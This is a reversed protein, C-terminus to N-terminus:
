DRNPALATLLRLRQPEVVFRVAGDLDTRKVEVNAAQLRQLVPPSPHGYVNRAGVSIVAYRPHWRDLWAPTTSTKSGHHAVKMVDISQNEQQPHPMPHQGLVEEEEPAEMDGTFLFRFGYLRLLFVVSENNQRDAVRLKSTRDGSPALVSIATEADPYLEPVQGAPVLPVGKDLLTRFLRNVKPDPKLTGNFVFRGIPIQEAVAQLGGIHDQDEHTAIVYDLKHVGRQLLLPVVVSRGVEFPNRRDRWEEGAKRFTLTGGGDILIFKRSPTRILAADGQGVDLFEVSATRSLRDPTYGYVLLLALATACAAAPRWSAPQRFAAPPQLEHVALRRALAALLLSLAAFYTAIWLPSPRPWILQFGDIAALRDIAWLTWRSLLGTAAGALRGLPLWVLGAALSVLAAPFLVAGFVPVFLANALWSLLSFANFYYVTIPFSVLQSVITVAAAQRIKEKRIPLLRSVRPVGALLAATIVFTLQFGVDYLFYPEWALMAWAALAALHLGDKLRGRRAAYLALMAMVGARVVSPSAGTLLVYGPMAAIGIWLSSERTVRLRKLLAFLLGLFVAVNMGSIALIHTLGLKSFQRYQEPDMDDQWGILMGKMLGSQDAPFIREMRAALAARLTDNWRLLREASIPAAGNDLRSVQGIGKVSLIWHIHRHRLYDRYDFGGFNRSPEPRLLVGSLRVADTRGFRRAAEQERQELLQVTVRMKENAAVPESESGFQLRKVELEFSARNGDVDVPSAIKGEATVESGSLADLDASVASLATVNRSDRWEGYGFAALALLPVVLANGRPLKRLWVVAAAAMAGIGVWLPLGLGPWAGAAAAGAIWAAVYWLLPRRM